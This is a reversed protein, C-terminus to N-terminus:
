TKILDPVIVYLSKPNVSINLVRGIKIPEGDINVVKNKKREIIVNKAKIIEVYKTKDIRHLFIMIPVFLAQFANVKKVICIDVLGDQLDADPSISINYGFQSSNAFALLLAKREFRKGDINIGYNRIKYNIFEHSVIKLYSWFKRHEAIAFKKAVLADFGVGAISIFTENNINVTDISIINAANIVKIANAPNFPIKLHHALGNGSGAPIIGLSTKTGILGKAVENVSGDGGVVVVVDYNKDAAEKSLKTAHHTAETNVIDYDYKDADLQEKIIDEIATNKGGGSIPNIIFRIKKKGKDEKSSTM